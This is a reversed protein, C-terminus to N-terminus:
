KPLGKYEGSLIQQGIDRLIARADEASVADKLDFAVQDYYRITHIPRHFPETPLPVDDKLTPGPLWVGNNAENPHVGLAQLTGRGLRAGDSVPSIGETLWRSFQAARV